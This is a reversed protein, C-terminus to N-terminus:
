IGRRYLEEMEQLKQMDEPYTGGKYANLYADYGTDVPQYGRMANAYVEAQSPGTPMYRGSDTRNGFQPDPAPTMLYDNVKKRMAVQENYRDQIQKIREAEKAEELEKQLASLRAEPSESYAQYADVLRGGLKGMENAFNSWIQGKNKWYENKIRNKDNVNNLAAQISNMPSYANSTYVGM